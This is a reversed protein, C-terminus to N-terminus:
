ETCHKEVATKKGPAKVSQERSPRHDPLLAPCAECKKYTRPSELGALIPAAVALTMQLQAFWWILLKTRGHICLLETGGVPSSGHLSM